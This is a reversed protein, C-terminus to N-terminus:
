RPLALAPLNLRSTSDRSKPMKVRIVFKTCNARLPVCRNKIELSWPWPWYEYIQERGDEEKSSPLNRYEQNEEHLQQLYSTTMLCEDRDTVRLSQNFPIREPIM